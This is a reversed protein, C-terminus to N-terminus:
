RIIVKAGVRALAFLHVVDENYMRICGNSASKGISSPKNTGHIRYYSSGLHMARPGLPNKPGPPVFAPLSPDRKRMNPTPRWGPNKVMRTIRTTGRYIKGPKGIAVPYTIAKGQGLSFYLLRQKNSVVITGAPHTAPMDVVQRGAFSGSDRSVSLDQMLGGRALSEVMSFDEPPGQNEFDEGELDEAYFEQEITEGVEFSEVQASALSDPETQAQAAVTLGIFCVAGFAFSRLMFVDRKIHLKRESEEHILWFRKQL